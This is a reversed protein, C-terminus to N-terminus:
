YGISEVFAFSEIGWLFGFASLLGFLFIKLGGLLGRSSRHRAGETLRGVNKDISLVKM